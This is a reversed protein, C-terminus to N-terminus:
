PLLDVVAVTGTQTGRVVFPIQDGPRYVTTVAYGPNAGTTPNSHVEVQREELNVIWYVPIQAQSYGRLKLTRDYQLTTDSVEIVVAIENPHPHQSDYRGAPGMVVAIDPEPESSSLRIAAQIRLRWGLPVLPRLADDLRDIASDHAPSRPMDSIAGEEALALADDESVIGTTSLRLCQDSTFRYVIPGGDRWGGKRLIRGEMLEVGDAETLIGLEIMRHYQDVTFRPAPAVTSATSM